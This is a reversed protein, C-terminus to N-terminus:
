SLASHATDAVNRKGRAIYYIATCAWQAVAANSNDRLFVASLMGNSSVYRQLSATVAACANYRDLLQKNAPLESLAGIAQCAYQNVTWTEAHQVLADM